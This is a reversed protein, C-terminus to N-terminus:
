VQKRVEATNDGDRRFDHGTGCFITTVIFACLILVFAIITMYAQTKGRIAVIRRLILIAGLLAWTAAILVIKADFISLEITASNAAAVGIGSALGFTMLVFCGSFGFINMGELKEINPMRGLVQMVKKRKLKRRGLLYLVASTTAFALSAGSLVMAIGHTIAWPTAAEPRPESAPEAVIGALLVMAMIGWVLVSGFWVQQIAISLFLYILGFVITLFIMSEFLGTLPVAKIAAARFVLLVAELTIALAVLPRLLRKYKAGGARLQLIGVIAAALYVAVAFAFVIKEPMELQFM